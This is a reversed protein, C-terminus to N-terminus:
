TLKEGVVIFKWDKKSWEKYIIKFNSKTLFNEVQNFTSGTKYSDSHYRIVDDGAKNVFMHIKIMFLKWRPFDKNIVELVIKGNPKLVRFIESFGTEPKEWYNLSFRSVVIDVSNNKLPIKEAKGQMTKFNNNKINKNAVMLMKDSPDIGIVEAQSIQKNIEPFLLGSGTGLDVIVPKEVNKSINNKIIGVLYSYLEPFKKMYESFREATKENLIFKDFKKTEIYTVFAGIVSPTLWIIVFWFLSLSIVNEPVVDFFSFITILAVERTGLGYISIPISAIVDAVVIIFIFYFFPVDINFLRSIFYLEATSVIWGIISIIFTFIVDKFRPIDEYFSDISNILRDKVTAFLRTKIIKTFVIKSREKKLLFILLSVVIIILIIIFVFLFPFISSLIVAGIAGLFLLSIYNTTNFIIINSLCKPLPCNSEYELYLARYYAGLGGPSIFGYFYGIFINKLSYFFSVKIKQKKLLIQWQINTLLVIPIVAFFCIFTYFPNISSFITYVKNLDLTSIIFILIIFGIIPLLKKYDM